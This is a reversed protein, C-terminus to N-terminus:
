ESSCSLKITDKPFVIHVAARSHRDWITSAHLSAPASNVTPYVEIRSSM